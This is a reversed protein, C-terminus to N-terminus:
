QSLAKLNKANEDIVECNETANGELLRQAHLLKFKMADCQPQGETRIPQSAFYCHLFLAQM